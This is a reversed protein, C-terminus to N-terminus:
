VSSTNCASRVSKAATYYADILDQGPGPPGRFYAALAESKTVYNDLATRLSDPLDPKIASRVSRAGAAITDGLQSSPVKQEAATENNRYATDFTRCVERVMARRVSTVSAATSAAAESRWAQADYANEVATGKVTSSCGILVGISVILTVLSIAPGLQRRPM